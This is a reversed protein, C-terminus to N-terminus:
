KLMSGLNKKAWEFREPTGIDIFPADVKVGYFGKGILGPFLDYEISFKGQPMMAFLERNFCYIGASIYQVDKTVFKEKFETIEDRENMVITGFDQNGEVRVGALTILAGKNHHAALMAPYDLPTFCDGNLGFVLESKVLASANKFAGGTGLPEPEISMLVEIERFKDRYHGALSEARYGACLIIRRAGQRMLYRILFDLFPEGQVEAMVKPADGTVSRLRTGLGGCLLLFDANM